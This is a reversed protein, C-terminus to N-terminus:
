SNIQRGTKPMAVQKNCLGWNYVTNKMYHALKFHRVTGRSLVVGAHMHMHMHMHAHKHPTYIIYVLDSDVRCNVILGAFCGNDRSSIM